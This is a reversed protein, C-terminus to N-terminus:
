FAYGVGLTSRFTLVTDLAPDGTPARDAMVVPYSYASLEGSLLLSLPGWLLTEVSAVLGFGFGASDRDPERGAQEGQRLWLAEGVLGGGLTAWALDVERRVELGASIETLDYRLRPTEQASGALTRAFGVRPRLTFWPLHISLAVRALPAAGIGEELPGRVGGELWLTSAVARGGKRVLRAYEVRQTLHDDAGITEGPALTVRGEFLADADRRSVRYTAPRLALAEGDRRPVVEAVVRGSEADLVLYDGGRALALWATRRDSPAHTWTLVTEGRGRLDYRYTPHQAGATTARTSEVTHAYVYDYAEALTVRGDEDTDAAGRMGSALHITFFSGGLRDSEQSDEFAASSAIVARGATEPAVEVSIRPGRRAGKPRVLTGSRCADVIHLALRGPIADLATRLETLRLAGDGLLLAREDAHGSYYFVVLADPAEAARAALAALGARVQDTSPSLLVTTDSEAMQGVDVFVGRLRQADAEAHRLAERGPPAGNSGVFLGFRRPEARPSAGFLCVALLAWPFARPRM